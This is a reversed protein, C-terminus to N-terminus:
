AGVHLFTECLAADCLAHDHGVVSLNQSEGHVSLEEPERRCPATRLSAREGSRAGAGFAGCVHDAPGEEHASRAAALCRSGQM